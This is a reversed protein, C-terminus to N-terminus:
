FRRVREMVVDNVPLSQEGPIIPSDTREGAVIADIVDTGEVVMGFATFGQDDLTSNDEGVNIFFQTAGSDVDGGRLALAVSYRVVNSLGNDAESAVPDRTPIREVIEGNMREYGGGQLVFPECVDPDDGPICSNRHFLLGDYFGDDVYLLFNATHLPAAESNLEITFDGVNTEVVVRPRLDLVSVIELDRTAAVPSGAGGPPTATLRVRVTEGSTTTLMPEAAAPDDLSGGGSVVEWLFAVGTVDEESMASLTVPQGVVALPPGTATVLSRVQVAVFDTAHFGQSDKAVVRFVYRGITTLPGISLSDSTADALEIEEPGANQDWRFVYPAMGGSTRANLSVTSGEFAEVVPSEATVVLDNEPEPGVVGSPPVIECAPLIVAILCFGFSAPFRFVLVQRVRSDSLLSLGRLQSKRSMCPMMM